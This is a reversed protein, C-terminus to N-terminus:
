TPSCHSKASDNKRSFSQMGKEQFEWDQPKELYITSGLHIYKYKLIYTYTYIYIYKHTNTNMNFDIFLYIKM